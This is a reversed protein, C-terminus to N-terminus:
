FLTTIFPDFKARSFAPRAEMKAWWETVRPHKKATV